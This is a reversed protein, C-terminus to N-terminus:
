PRALGSAPRSTAVRLFSETLRVLEMLAFIIIIGGSLLSQTLSEANLKWGAWLLYAYAALTVVTKPRRTLLLQITQLLLGVLIGGALVGVLGFDAHLYGIFPAPALGTDIREPFMYRFVYNAIDFEPEGLAWRLRGITRGELYPVVDPVVEFYNYLIEAPLYFLRHFIGKAILGASVGLGSLSQALVAVPFLFVAALGGVAARLSVRGSAHLYLTLASVLVIVAVPMKAITLAAYVIGVVATVLTLLLWRRERGAVYWGLAVAILFPYVVRRLVDYAYIFPSDLLKFSEERLGVLLDAAGPNQILYVLPIVPTEVLYGATLALCVLLLLLFAATQYPAPRRRELPRKFFAAVEPRGFGTAARVLLMGLPVTLLTSLVAVLYPTVYPTHRDAAVFFAPIVTGALYSILWIGPVTLRRPALGAAVHVMGIALLVAVAGAVYRPSPAWGTLVVLAAVAAGSLIVPLYKM